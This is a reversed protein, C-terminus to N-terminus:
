EANPDGPCREFTDDLADVHGMADVQRCVIPLTREATCGDETVAGAADLVQLCDMPQCRRFGFGFSSHFYRFHADSVEVTMEDNAHRGGFSYAATIPSVVGGRSIWAGDVSYVPGLDDVGTPRAQVYIIGQATAHDLTCIHDIDDLETTPGPCFFQDDCPVERHQPVRVRFGHEDVEGSADPAADPEADLEADPAPGRDAEADAIAGDLTADANAGRDPTPDDGGSSSCAALLLLPAAIWRRM